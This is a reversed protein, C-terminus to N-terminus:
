NKGTDRAFKYLLGAVCAEANKITTWAALTWILDKGNEDGRGAQEISEVFQKAFKAAEHVAEGQTHVIYWNFRDIIEGINSEQWVSESINDIMNTTVFKEFDGHKTGFAIYNAAHHPENVDELYHLALGLEQMAERWKGNRYYNIANRYHQDMRTRATPNKGGLFNKGSDPDYFHGLFPIMDFDISLDDAKEAYTILTNMDQLSFAVQKNPYKTIITTAYLVYGWATLRDHCMKQENQNSPDSTWFPTPGDATEERVGVYRFYDQLTDTDGARFAEVLGEVTYRGQETGGAAFVPAGCLLLFTGVLVLSCAKKMFRIM